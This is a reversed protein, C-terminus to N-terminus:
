SDFYAKVKRQTLCFLFAGAILAGVGARLLDRTLLLTAVDGMGNVAFLALATWWAWKSRMILGRGASGTVIGLALLPVGALKGAREFALHGPRNLDWMRDWLPGPFLLSMGTVLAMAAACFLFIAVITVTRPRREM